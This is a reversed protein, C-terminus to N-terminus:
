SIVDILFLIHYYPDDDDDGDDDDYVMLNTKETAVFYRVFSRIWNGWDVKGHHGDHCGPNGSENQQSNAKEKQAEQQFL